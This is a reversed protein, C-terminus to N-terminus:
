VDVSRTEVPEPHPTARERGSAWWGGLCLGALALLGAVVPLRAFAPTKSTSVEVPAAAVDQRATDETGLRTDTWAALTVEDLSSLGLRSGFDAELKPNPIFGVRSDFPASSVRHNTWDEADDSYALFADNLINSPDRRRDYFLVDVRGNPAVDVKPMYQDTGDRVRNDNVRVPGTWTRGGDTSRRLFVDLDDNRGDAWAVYLSEDDGAAISPFEPLFVLFRKLPLVDSDVEVGKSFTVGGDTSKTVVLAFPESWPPGELNQYDRSDDKFDQYLIVLNGASDIVPSAAGVRMRDPDSVEVPASWTAGGDSSRSTVVPSPYGVIAYPAVDAVRLWTLHVVGGPDVAIRAQFSLAGAVLVPDSLTLGGDTSKAVWMNDPRNGPGQLNVYVVYLTGDPAFAVDPAFARDKDPPLPLPTTQWARGGNESVQLYATYRPLDVRHTVVVHEERAPNREVTPSNNADIPAAENVFVNQGVKVSTDTTIMLVSAVVALLAFLAALVALATKRRRATGGESAM